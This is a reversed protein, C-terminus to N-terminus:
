HAMGGAKAPDIPKLFMALPAVLLTLVSLALFVDNFSMVLADVMVQADMARYAAMLGEPGGGFSLAKQALAQQVAPDNAALSGQLQWHHVDLRQDQFSAVAALGISAGLNRSVVYLSSADAADENPVSSLAVQQLPLAAMTMGGGLLMMTVGFVWGDSSATLRTSVFAALAQVLFAGGVLVRIDVWAVLVPYLGAGVIATVGALSIVQGSQISNYQAIVALFQPVSFMASFMLAGAVLMLAIVSALSANRLLALRVVPRASRKQGWAILGFGVVAVGALMRILPSSFWQERHGEELLVTMGGLGLAMGAIGAWDANRFESLDGKDATLGVILLVMLGACIPLNMFFAYRWSISETLWGGVLPGVIPGVIVACAFLAMGVAQQQPPLRRAIISLATPMLVGGAFGQGIRGVIITQLDPAVGCLMSFGVFALAATMLLMRLGLLRELWATLPIVIIEAVLYATSVWTGESQTAGIEGQLVPLSSNVVSIDLVAMFAGLTGAAVALWAALDAREPAPEAPAVAPLAADESM